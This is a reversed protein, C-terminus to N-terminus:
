RTTRAASASRRGPSKPMPRTTRRRTKWGPSRTASPMRSVWWRMRRVRRAAGGQALHVQHQTVSLVELVRHEYDGSLTFTAPDDTPTPMIIINWRLLWLKFTPRESVPEIAILEFNPETQDLISQLAAELFRSGNYVPMVVSCHPSGM